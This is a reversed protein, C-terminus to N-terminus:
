EGSALPEIRRRPAADGASRIQMAVADPAITVVLMQSANKGAADGPGVVPRKLEESIARRVQEPSATAGHSREVIVLLPEEPAPSAAARGDDVPGALVSVLGLLGQAAYTMDKQLGVLAKRESWRSAFAWRSRSGRIM